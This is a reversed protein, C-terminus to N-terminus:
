VKPRALEGSCEARRRHNMAGDPHLRAKFEVRKEGVRSQRPSWAKVAAVAQHRTTEHHGDGTEGQMWSM